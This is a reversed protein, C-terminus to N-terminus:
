GNYTKPLYQRNNINDGGESFDLWSIFNRM